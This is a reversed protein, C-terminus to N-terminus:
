SALSTLMSIESMCACSGEGRFSFGSYTWIIGDSVEFYLDLETVRCYCGLPQRGMLSGLTQARGSASQRLIGVNIMQTGEEGQGDQAFSSKM